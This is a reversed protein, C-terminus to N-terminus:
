VGCQCVRNCVVSVCGTVPSCVAVVNVCGTVYWVSM